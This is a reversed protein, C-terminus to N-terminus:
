TEIRIQVSTGEGPATHLELQGELLKIRNKISGWGIGQSKELIKPDFGSGNDEVTIEMTNGSRILQVIIERPYGHRIANHVLEQVIRYISLSVSQELELEELGISQYSVKLKDEQNTLSCFDRLATDLGFTVLTQPMMNYAIRRIEDISFDLMDIGKVYAERNIEDEGASLMANQISFKISSLMSGLGDHLERAVREREKEEGHLVAEIAMLRTELEIKNLKKQRLALKHQFNRYLLFGIIILLVIAIILSTSLLNRNRLIRDQRQAQGELQEIQRAKIESEYRKELQLVRSQIQSNLIEYAKADAEEKYDMQSAYDGGALSVKELWRLADVEEAGLKEKRFTELAKLGLLEASRYDRRYMEYASRILFAQGIGVADRIEESIQQASQAAGRMDEWQGKRQYYESLQLQAAAKLYNDEMAVAIELAERLVAGAKETEGLAFHNASMNCLAYGLEHTMGHKRALIISQNGLAYARDYRRLKQYLTQLIDSGKAIFPEQGLGEFLTNGEMYLPIAEEYLNLLQFSSGTNFLCKALVLSDGMKRAIGLSRQNLVLSSDYKGQMNLVYTYNSIYKLVGRDYGISDSVAGAKRYWAVASDPYAGELRQGEAIMRDVGASDRTVAAYKLPLVPTDQLDQGMTAWHFSLLISLPLFIEKM